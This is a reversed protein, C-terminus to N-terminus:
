VEEEISEAYLADSPVLSDGGFSKMKTEKKM